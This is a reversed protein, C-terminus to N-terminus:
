FFEITVKSLFYFCTTGVTLLLVIILLMLMRIRKEECCSLTQINKLNISVKDAFKLLMKKLTM